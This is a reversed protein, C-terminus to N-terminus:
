HLSDSSKIATILIVVLLLPRDTQGRPATRPRPDDPVGCNDPGEMMPSTSVSSIRCVSTMRCDVSCDFIRSSISWAHFHHPQRPQPPKAFSTGTCYQPKSKCPRKSTLVAMWIFSVFLFYPLFFSFFSFDDARVWCVRRLGRLQLVKPKACFM